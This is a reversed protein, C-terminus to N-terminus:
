KYGKYINKRFGIAEITIVRTKDNVSFVIRYSGVRFRYRGQPGELKKVDSLGHEPWNQLAKINEEILEEQKPLLSRPWKLQKGEIVSYVNIVPTIIKEKELIPTTKKSLLSTATPMTTSTSSTSTTSITSTTSTTVPHMVPEIPLFKPSEESSIESTALQQWPEAVEKEAAITKKLTIKKQQKKQPQIVVKKIEQKEKTAKALYSEQKLEVFFAHMAKDAEEQTKVIAGYHVFLPIVANFGVACALDVPTLGHISEITYDAGAKLLADVIVYNKYFCAFHLPTNGDNAQANIDAGKKILLNMIKPNKNKGAFHLATRGKQDKLTVDAGKNLLVIAIEPYDKHCAMALITGGIRGRTNVNAGKELLYEVVNKQGTRCALFLPTLKEFNKVEIHAGHTILTKVIDLFGKYAAIHLPTDGREDAAYGSNLDAGDKLLRRVEQLDDDECAQWLQPGLNYQREVYEKEEKPIQTSMMAITSVSIACGGICLMIPVIFSRM